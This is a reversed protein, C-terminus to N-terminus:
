GKGQTEYNYFTCDVNGLMQMCFASSMQHPYHLTM